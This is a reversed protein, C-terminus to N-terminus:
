GIWSAVGATVACLTTGWAIDTVAYRIPYNTLTAYNTLDYLGYLSLGLAAGYGASEQWTKKVAFLWISGAIIIYVLVAPVWRIVLPSKQIAAFV